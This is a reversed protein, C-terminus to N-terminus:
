MNVNFTSFELGKDVNQLSNWQRDLQTLMLLAPQLTYWFLDLATGVM